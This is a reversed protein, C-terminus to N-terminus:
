VHQYTTMRFDHDSWWLVECGVDRAEWSHSDISGEGESFSGHLHLQVSWPREPESPTARCAHIALVAFAAAFAARIWRARNLHM